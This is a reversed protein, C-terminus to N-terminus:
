ARSDKLRALEISHDRVTLELPDIRRNMEERLEAFGAKMERRITETPDPIAKICEIVDEHLVRMLHGMDRVETRLTTFDARLENQGARLEQVDTRLERVDTRIEQIDTRIEQVDTRLGHVDSRIETLSSEIKTLREESM